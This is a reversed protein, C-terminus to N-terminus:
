LVQVNNRGNAKAKYQAADARDILEDLTDSDKIQSIGISITLKIGNTFNKKEVMDRIRELVNHAEKARINPMLLLFEDGGWRSLIDSERITKLMMDTLSILIQDGTSHGYSDNIKKFYDIDIMAISLPQNYRISQEKFKKLYDNFARRNYLTTLEDVTSLHILEKEVIERKSIENTLEEKSATTEKINTLMKNFVEALKGIEDNSSVEIRKDLNDHGIESAFDVLDDISSTVRKIFLLSFIFIIFLLAFELLLFQYTLAFLNKNILEKPMTLVVFWNEGTNGLIHDISEYSGGFGMENSGSTNVVPNSTVLINENNTDIIIDSIFDVNLASLFNEDLNESLPEKNLEFVVLGGSRVLKVTSPESMELHDNLIGKLLDLININCKLIGVVENNEYIPAVVGLVYGTASADYGRDDFFLKGKGDNYSALWWYKEGHALTTLKNTSAVLEGYKNTLFIEGYWDPIVERQERLFNAVPNALYYQIFPDNIDDTNMWKKNLEEIRTKTKEEGLLELQHNSETLAEKIIPSSALTSTTRGLENLYNDISISIAKATHADHVKAENLLLGRNYYEMIMTSLLVFVMSIILISTTLKSRLSM